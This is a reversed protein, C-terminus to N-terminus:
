KYELAFEKSLLNPISTLNKLESLMYQRLEGKECPRRLWIDVNLCIRKLAKENKIKNYVSKNIYYEEDYRFVIYNILELKEKEELKRFQKIFNHYKSYSEDIFMMIVTQGTIPFIAINVAEMFDRSDTTAINNILHGELDGRLVLKGQYALPVTYDLINWYVLDYYIEKKGNIGKLIRLFEKKHDRTDDDCYEALPSQKGYNEKMYIHIQKEVMKKAIQKLNNKLAIERLVIQTPKGLITYPNEYNAFYKKDCDNCICKFVGTNKIGKFIDSIPNNEGLILGSSQCIYGNEEINKLIFQPVTHSNCFSSCKKKCILCHEGKAKAEIDRKIKNFKIKNQIENVDDM